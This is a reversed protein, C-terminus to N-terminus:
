AIRTAPGCHSLRIKRPTVPDSSEINCCLACAGGGACLWAHYTALKDLVSPYDRREPLCGVTAAGCGAFGYSLYEDTEGQGSLTEPM